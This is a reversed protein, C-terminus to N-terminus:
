DQLALLCSKERPTRHMFSLTENYASETKGQTVVTISLGNPFM